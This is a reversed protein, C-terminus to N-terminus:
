FTRRSIPAQQGCKQVMSYGARCVTAPKRSTRSDTRSPMAREIACSRAASDRYVPRAVVRDRALDRGRPRDDGPAVNRAYTWAGDNSSVQISADPYLPNERDM